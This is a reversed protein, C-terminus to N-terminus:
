LGQDPGGGGGIKKENECYSQVGGGGRCNQLQSM